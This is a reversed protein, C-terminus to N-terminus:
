RLRRKPQGVVNKTFFTCTTIEKETVWSKQYNASEENNKSKWIDMYSISDFVVLEHEM